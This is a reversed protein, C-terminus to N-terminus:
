ATGRDPFEADGPRGGSSGAREAPERTPAGRDRWSRIAYSAARRDDHRNRRRTIIM